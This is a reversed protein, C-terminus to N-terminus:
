GAAPELEMESFFGPRPFHMRRLGTTVIVHGSFIQSTHWVTLLTICIQRQAHFNMHFFVETALVSSVSDACVERMFKISFFLGSFSQTLNTTQKNVFDFSM